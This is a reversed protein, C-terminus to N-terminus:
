LSIRRGEASSGRAALVVDLAQYVDELGSTKRVLSTVSRHFHLLLQETVPREHDLAEMHQGADDFWTLRNPLDVFAVGRECCVQLGAPRRFNIAESWAQPIYNSSSIQALAGPRQEGSPPFDLSMMQYDPTDHTGHFHHSAGVVSAPKRDVMYCCWDVLGMMDCTAAQQHSIRPSKGNLDDDSTRHHCFLLRPEGLKTAILEKLRLTAPSHRRPFEAMFSVGSTEVRQKISTSQSPDTHLAPTAYIAKGADCAALIPLAGVWDPELLMVADVDERTLLSRFGDVALADFERAAREAKVAVEACIARVEFRDTLSLLAPRHHTEWTRGLGVIGVRLKM